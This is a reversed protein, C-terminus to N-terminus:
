GDRSQGGGGCSIGADCGEGESCRCRRIPAGDSSHSTSRFRFPLPNKGPRRLSLPTPFPLPYPGLPLRSSTAHHLSHPSASLSLPIPEIHHSASTEHERLECTYPEAAYAHVGARM